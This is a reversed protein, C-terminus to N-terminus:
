PEASAPPAHAPETAPMNRFLEPLPLAVGIAQLPVTDDAGFAELVWREGERAYREVTRHKPDIFLVHQVSAVSRYRLFKGGRDWGETSPSLVEAVLVPSTTANADDPHLVLDGCHVTVDPYLIDDGIRLKLDADYVQCPGDGLASGLAIILNTKVRAHAPSGGTMAFLEGDVLEHRLGTEREQEAHDASTASLRHATASM